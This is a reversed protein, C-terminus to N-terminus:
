RKSRNKLRWVGFADLKPDTSLIPLHHQIAQAAIIRDFPDGHKDDFRAAQMMSEPELLLLTYGADGSSV